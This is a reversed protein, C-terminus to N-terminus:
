NLSARDALLLTAQAAALRAGPIRFPSCSVYDIGIETCTLISAPDGGQEGCIGIEIESCASKAGNIAIKMVKAVTPDLTQFPDSKLIRKDIYTQLFRSSDDRSIHMVSSSLDNTGFTQFGTFPALEETQLCIGANELMAGVLFDKPCELGYEKATAVILNFQDEYEKINIVFPVEIELHPHLNNKRLEVITECLARVQLVTIEPFVVGLRCGRFGSGPNAEHLAEIRHELENLSINLDKCLTIKLELQAKAEGENAPKGFAAFEHLPPDLLRVTVPLGSMAKFTGYFSRKFPDKLQQLAEFKEEPSDTLIMKKMLYLEAASDAGYFAHETRFLGIGVAGFQRAKQAEEATECNARVSVKPIGSIHVNDAWILVELFEDTLVPQSLECQGEIAEGTTGNISLYDGESLIVSDVTVTKATYDISCKEAGVICPKGWGRLVVAAHSSLGGTSTLVADAAHMGEIDEPSTEKRVLIVKKGELVWAVATAKDFVIQGVAAGPSAALGTVFVNGAKQYKNVTDSDFCPLLMQTVHGPTVLKRIATEKSVLGEQVMDYAIKFAAPGNRKGNRTQLMYLNGNEITFECDQIDCRNTELTKVTTLLQTYVEPMVEKLRLLPEPTRVGAVVDEGQANFLIEGYLENKGTSPNRTFLVGTGSQDNINGFVMAMVVVATGLLDELKEIRRYSVAKEGYWSKFVAEVAPFLQEWPDQPFSMGTKEEFITEYIDCLRKMDEATMNQDSNISHEIKYDAFAKEFHDHDVGKVTEAWMDILRRYCDWAFNESHFMKALGLITDRSVGINLITKLMGPMSAAAGSRSSLLLPKELDGFKRGVQLGIKEVLNCIQLKLDDTLFGRELYPKCETTPIVFGPPVQTPIVEAMEILGYGKGGLIAPKLGNGNTKGLGFHYLTAKADQAIQNEFNEKRTSM